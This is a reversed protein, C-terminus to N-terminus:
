ADASDSAWDWRIYRDGKFIYGKAAFPGDGEVAADFSSTYGSPLGPWNGAIKKPYGADTRDSAWDYRVYSDGKFLYCKGAFRGQGNIAADIGSAFDAPLGPWNGAIKKPYGTDTRDSAWDYRVYSDGKFLYCKGAFRGQGNIAADIGSAFAAPLGRWSNAIKQPYGADTRDSAWDYRVYSDGKFLYCKGAFPGGGNLASSFGGSFGAPLGRWGEAIKFTSGQEIYIKTFGDIGRMEADIGCQGYGIWFYGQMGWGTGWSNKCLWAKQSDSYGVACVCHGGAFGSVGNWKYVGGQYAFFDDYVKFCAVLPGKTVMHEKMSSSSTLLTSGSPKTVKAEWNSCLKCSQDGATYPFCSAPVLGTTQCYSLAASPWWGTGCSYGQPAAGCYFLQAESLEKLSGSNPDNTAVGRSVRMAGNIAAATGFAVCSGCSGQDVVPSIFNRGGVNRLDYASPAAAALNAAGAALKSIAAMERETLSPEGPGPVYGLRRLREEKSLNLMSTPGATWGMGAAVNADIVAQLLDNDLAM